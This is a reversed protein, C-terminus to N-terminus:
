ISFIQQNPVFMRTLIATTLIWRQRNVVNDWSLETSLIGPLIKNNGTQATIVLLRVSRRFLGIHLQKRHRLFRVVKEIKLVENANPM